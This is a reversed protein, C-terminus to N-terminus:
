GWFPHLGSALDDDDYVKWELGVVKKAVSTTIEMRVGRYGLTEIAEDVARQVVQRHQGKAANSIRSWIPSLQASQGVQHWRLLTIISGGYYSDPTKTADRTRRAADEQRAVRQDAILTGLSSAIHQAGQHIANTGLTPLDRQVLAWRYATLTAMDAPAQMTPAAPYEHCLRSVTNAAPRTLAVRLWDILPECAAMQGATEIAGKLRIWADRPSLSNELLITVFRPPVAMTRRTRVVETGADGNGFPGVFQADPDQGLLQDMMVVTPVQVQNNITYFFQPEWVISPPAQGQIVDGQFAFAVDDWPTAPLGIRSGFRTVRHYLTIAGPYNPDAGAPRCHAVFAMNMDQDGAQYVRNALQNPTFLPPIVLDVDFEAMM